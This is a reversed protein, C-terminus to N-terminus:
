ATVTLSANIDRVVFHADERYPMVIFSGAIDRESSLASVAGLDQVRWGEHMAIAVQDPDIGFVDTCTVVNSSTGGGTYTPQTRNPVFMVLQGMSSIFGSFYGNGVQKIGQDGPITAQPTAGKITADVFKANIKDHLTPTTMLYRVNARKLYTALLGAGVMTAWALARGVGVTPADVVHTSSNYGGSVGGTGLYDNTAIWASFGGTKQATVNNDGVVTAQHTLAIAEMDQRLGKLEKDTEYVLQDVNGANATARATSSVSITGRLIQARNSVRTGTAAKYSSPRSGAIAANSTVAARIDDFTWETKDSNATDTRVLNLFPTDAVTQLFFIKRYLDERVLGGDALARLDVVDIADAPFAM